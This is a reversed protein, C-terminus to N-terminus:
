CLLKNKRSLCIKATHQIENEKAKFDHEKRRFEDRTGHFPKHSPQQCLPKRPIQGALPFTHKKANKGSDWENITQWVICHFENQIFVM